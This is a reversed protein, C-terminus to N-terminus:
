LSFVYDHKTTHSKEKLLTLLILTIFMSCLVRPREVNGPILVCELHAADPLCAMNAEIYLVRPSLYM